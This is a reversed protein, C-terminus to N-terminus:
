KLVRWYREHHRWLGIHSARGPSAKDLAADQRFVAEDHPDFKRLRWGTFAAVDDPDVDPNAFSQGGALLLRNAPIPPLGRDTPAARSAFALPARADGAVVADIPSDLLQRPM